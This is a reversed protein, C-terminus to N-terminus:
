EEDTEKIKDIKNQLRAIRRSNRDLATWVYKVSGDRDRKVKVPDHSYGINTMWQNIVKLQDETIDRDDKLIYRGGPTFRVKNQILDLIRDGDITKFKLQDLQEKGYKDLMEKASLVKIPKMELKIPEVKKRVGTDTPTIKETAGGDTKGCDKMIGDYIEKTITVDDSSDDAFLSKSKMVSLTNPGFYGDVKLNGTPNLCRQIDKIKDSICGLSMPFDNCPSYKIGGGSGGGKKGDDWTVTLHSANSSGGSEKDSKTGETDSVKGGSQIKSIISLMEDKLRTSQAKTTVIYKLTKRLDGDGLGSRQYLSLFQQGRGNNLYKKLLDNASQLNSGSVPFDLLDIMNEVDNDMESVSNDQENISKIATTNCDWKGNEGSKTTVKYDSYFRIWGGTQKGGFEKVSIQLYIGNGDAGATADNKGEFEDVICKKWDKVSQPADQNDLDPLPDIGLLAQIYDYITYGLYGLALLSTIILVKRAALYTKWGKGLFGGIQKANGNVRPKPKGSSFRKSFWASLGSAAQKNGQKTTTSVVKGLANQFKKSDKAAKLIENAATESYGKNLLVRKTLKDGRKAYNAIFRSDEVWDKAIMRIYDDSVGKTKLLGTVLDGYAKPKLTGKSIGVVLDDINKVGTISKATFVKLLDDAFVPHATKLSNLTLNKLGSTFGQFLRKFAAQEDIELSGERIIDILKM